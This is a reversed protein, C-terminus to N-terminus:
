AAGVGQGVQTSWFSVFRPCCSLSPLRLRNRANCAARNPYCCAFSPSLPRSCAHAATWWAQLTPIHAPYSYPQLAPHWFSFAPKRFARVGHVVHKKRVGAAALAMGRQDLLLPVLSPKCRLLRCLASAATGRFPDSGRGSMAQLCLAPM